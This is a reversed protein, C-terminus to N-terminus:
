DGASLVLMVEGHALLSAPDRQLAAYYRREFDTGTESPKLLTRADALLTDADTVAVPVDADLTEDVRVILESFAHLWAFQEHNVVLQLLEGSTVRGEVQEYAARQRELLAKHLHLLARRLDLLRQLMRESAPSQDPIPQNM